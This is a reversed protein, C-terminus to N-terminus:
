TISSALENIQHLLYKTKNIKENINPITQDIIKKLQKNQEILKRNENFLQVNDDLLHKTNIKGNKTNNESSKEINKVTDYEQKLIFGIELLLEKEETNADVNLQALIDICRDLEKLSLM